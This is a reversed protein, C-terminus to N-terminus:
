HLRYDRCCYCDVVVEIIAKPNLIIIKIIFLKLAFIYWYCRLRDLHM